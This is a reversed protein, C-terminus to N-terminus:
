RGRSSSAAPFLAPPRASAEHASGPPGATLRENLNGTDCGRLGSGQLTQKPPPRVGSSDHCPLPATGDSTPGRLAEKSFFFSAREAPFHLHRGAPLHMSFLFLERLSQLNQWLSSKLKPCFRFIRSTMFFLMQCSLLEESISCPIDM